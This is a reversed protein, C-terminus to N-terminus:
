GRPTCPVHAASLRVLPYIWAPLVDFVQGRVTKFFLLFNILFVISLM